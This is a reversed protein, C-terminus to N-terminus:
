IVVYHRVCLQMCCMPQNNLPFVRKYYVVTKECLCIFFRAGQYKLFFYSVLSQTTMHDLRLLHEILPATPHLAIQLGITHGDIYSRQLVPAM